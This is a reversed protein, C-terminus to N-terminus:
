RALPALATRATDAMAPEPSSPSPSRSQALRLFLFAVWPLSLGIAADRMASNLCTAVTMITMASLALRGALDQRRWAARLGAAFIAVLSLLGAVGGQSGMWLFDNHPMNYDALLPPSRRKWEQTWGGIGWGTWPRDLMMRTTERYMYFRVVWSGESVTGTQAAELESLGLRFKDDISHAQSLVAGTAVGVMCLAVALTRLRGRWQHVCAAVLAAFMAVLSTRSPLGATVVAVMALPFVVAMGLRWARAHRWPIQWGMALVASTAGLVAFLLADNISKNGKMVIVNHWLLFDPLGVTHSLAMAALAFAAGGAFGRLGAKAESDSLVVTVALTTAIRLGHWLNAATEPYHPGVALVLLTWGTYAALPWALPSTRLRELREGYGGAAALAALAVFAALYNAGVPMFVVFGWFAAAAGVFGTRRM